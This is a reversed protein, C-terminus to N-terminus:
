ATPITISVMHEIDASLDYARNGDSPEWMRQAPIGRKTYGDHGKVRETALGRILKFAASFSLSPHSKQLKVLAQVFKENPLADPGFCVLLHDYAVNWHGENLAKM